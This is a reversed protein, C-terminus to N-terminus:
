MVTGPPLGGGPDTGVPWVTVDASGEGATISVHGPAVATPMPPDHASVSVVGPDSSTWTLRTVSQSSADLARLTRMDGVVMNLLNPTVTVASGSGLVTFTVPNSLIGNQQVQVIASVASAAVRAEILTASWTLVLGNTSGLRVPGTGRTDLLHPPRLASELTPEPGHLLARFRSVEVHWELLLM